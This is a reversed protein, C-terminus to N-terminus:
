TTIDLTYRPHYNKKFFFMLESWSYLNQGIAFYQRITLLKLGNCFNRGM